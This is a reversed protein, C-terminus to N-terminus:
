FPVEDSGAPVPTNSETTPGSEVPSAVEEAEAEVAPAYRTIIFDTSYVKEGNKEYSSNSIYGRLDWNTDEKVDKEISEATEKFAKIWMVTSFKENKAPIRVMVSIYANGKASYKFNKKVVKGSFRFSNIGVKVPQDYNM